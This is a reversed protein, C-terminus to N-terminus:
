IEGKNLAGKINTHAINADNNENVKVTDRLEGLAEMFDSTFDNRFEKAYNGRKKRPVEPLNDMDIDAVWSNLDARDYTDIMTKVYQKRDNEEEEEEEGKNNDNNNGGDVNEERGEHSVRARQLDELM